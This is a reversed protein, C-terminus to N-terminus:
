ATAELVGSSALDNYVHQEVVLGERVVLRDLFRVGEFPVGQLNEGGLTGAIVVVVEGDPGAAVDTSEMHKVLGTYRRALGDRMEALSRFEGNPFVFRVEAAVYAAAEDWRGSTSAELYARMRAGVEATDGTSM